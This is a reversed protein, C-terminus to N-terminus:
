ILLITYPIFIAPGHIPPPGRPAQTSTQLHLTSLVAYPTAALRTMQLQPAQFQGQSTLGQDQWASEHPRYMCVCNDSEAPAHDLHGAEAATGSSQHCAPLNSHEAAPASLTAAAHCCGSDLGLTLLLCLILGYLAQARRPLRKSTNTFFPKWFM